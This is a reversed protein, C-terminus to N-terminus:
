KKKRKAKLEKLRAQASAKVEAFTTAVLENGEKQAQAIHKDCGEIMELERREAHKERYKCVDRAVEEWAVGFLDSVLSVTLSGGLDQIETSFSNSPDDYEAVWGICAEYSPGRLFAGARYDNKSFIYEYRAGFDGDSLAEFQAQLAMHIQTIAKAPVARKTEIEFLFHYKKKM